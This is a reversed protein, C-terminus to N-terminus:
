LCGQECEGNGNKVEKGECFFFSIPFVYAVGCFCIADAIASTCVVADAFSVSLLTCSGSFIESEEGKHTLTFSNNIRWICYVGLCLFAFMCLLM